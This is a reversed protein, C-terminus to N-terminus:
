EATGREAHWARIRDVLIKYEPVDVPAGKLWELLVVDDERLLQEYLQQEEEILEAYVAHVFPMLLLDLELLGRRSRMCARRHGESLPYPWESPALRKSQPHMHFNATRTEQAALIATVVVVRM